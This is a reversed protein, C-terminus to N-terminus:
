VTYSVIIDHLILKYDNTNNFTLKLFIWPNRIRNRGNRPINAKWERFKRRLNKDRGIELSIKGSDQYENYAQIHTITKDPQDIDDLYVESNYFINNFVTDQNANPNVMLTITSEEHKGLFKNYKGINNEYINNNSNMFLKNGKNIYMSPKYTKQDIFYDVGENFVRTFSKNGQLLTIYVDNNYIDTGLVVGEGLLPNDTRLKNYDYNNNFWSHFGKLDSLLMSSADPIRGVGKNLLDYYYIGKKGKVIGWKNVAGSSNTIYQYDYLVNGKGLEIGIGDDGQVQVRPNVAILAIAEDQFAYVKDRYTLLANIPGYKGDLDMVENALIDTWSDISENPIKLKSSQIRTDFEDIKRFTFDVDNSRILNSGQSYVQNYQTYEDQQPLFKNTWDNLSLDNRNKLNIQTEVPFSVIESLITDDITASDEATRNLKLFKFNQVFTDGPNNIVVNTSPGNLKVYDGIELYVTRKKEEFSNGNYIKGFYTYSDKRRIESVILSNEKTSTDVATVPLNQFIDELKIRNQTETLNNDNLVITATKCNNSKIDLIKGRQGGGVLFGRLNNKYAFRGDDNYLRDDDGKESIEPSGYIDYKANVNNNEFFTNYERYWQRANFTDEAGTSAIYAHPIGTDLGGGTNFTARFGEDEIYDNPNILYPNLGSESKGKNKITNSNTFIERAWIGNKTNNVLGIPVLQLDNAFTLSKNFLIEPSYMQMMATHLFTSSSDNEHGIESSTRNLDNDNLGGIWFLHKTKGLKEETSSSGGNENSNPFTRFTRTLYGPMKVTKDQFELRKNNDSWKSFDSEDGKVQYMMSNLIGQCIITKDNENRSARLIKFGVPIDDKSEFEYTNLWLFFEPTFRVKLESHKNDLNNTFCKFDAIWKPLSTQGLKNYFKIGIRYVEDKKFYKQTKTDNNPVEKLEYNIFKGSGGNNSSDYQFNNIKYNPNISSNKLPLDYNNNVPLKNGQAISQIVGTVEDIVQIVGTVEDIVQTTTSNEPFSYARLDLEDPLLFNKSKIDSLLLRNDKSEIHRPIFPDSGLFLFESLSLDEIVSGTDFYVFNNSDIESENILSITPIQGLSTYKIAYVKIHTYRRDLNAIELKPTTGIIENIEGGGAGDGKDLPVLDSLPSIKTQSGNLNYMNYSYQIMGATHTGGGIYDTIEPQSFEVNGVFNLNSKNVDILNGNGKINSFTINIFRLQQNGDVWYVKQINENEFNFITQIPFDVSFGLNRIYLLELEYDGGDELINNVKWIVDGAPTTTFLILSDRTVSNGIITYDSITSSVLDSNVENTLENNDFELLSSGYSITSSVTDISINPFSVKLVTGKENTVSGTSQGDTAIIRIHQGDFYFEKSHKSKTIDQNAGSVSYQALKNAM